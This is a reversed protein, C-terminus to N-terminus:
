PNLQFVQAAKLDMFKKYHMVSALRHKDVLSQIEDAKDHWWNGKMM